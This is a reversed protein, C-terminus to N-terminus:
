GEVAVERYAVRTASAFTASTGLGTVM